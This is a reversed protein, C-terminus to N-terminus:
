CPTCQYTNNGRSCDWVGHKMVSKLMSSARIERNGDIETETKGERGGEREYM